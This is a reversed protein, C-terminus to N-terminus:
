QGILEAAVASLELEGWALEHARVPDVGMMRLINECLADTAQDASLEPHDHLRRGLMLMAGVTAGVVGEPDELHFVGDAVGRDISGRMKEVFGTGQAYYDAGLRILVESILPAVRHVRGVVRFNRAVVEDAADERLTDEVLLDSLRNVAEYASQEFFEQKTNFFNYFSGNSVGASHCIRLISVDTEGQALFSLGAKLLLLRTREPRSADAEPAMLMESIWDINM